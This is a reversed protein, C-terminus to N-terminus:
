STRWDIEDTNSKGLNYDVCLIQLNTFELELAPFKSRPKIHDVHIEVNTRFCVMCKRGYLKLAQYRLARWSDSEYFPKTNDQQRKRRSVIKKVKTLRQKNKRNCGKCKDARRSIRIAVGCDLCRKTEKKKEEPVKIIKEHGLEEIKTECSYCIKNRLPGCVIGCIRCKGWGPAVRALGIDGLLGAPSIM